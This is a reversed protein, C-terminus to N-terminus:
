HEGLTGFRVKTMTGHKDFWFEVQDNFGLGEGHRYKLIKQDKDWGQSDYVFYRNSNNVLTRVDSSSSRFSVGDTTLFDFDGSQAAMTMFFIGRDRHEYKLLNANQYTFLNRAHGGADREDLKKTLKWNQDLVMNNFDYISFRNGKYWIEANIFDLIFVDTKEKAEKALVEAKKSETEKLEELALKEQDGTLKVPQATATPVPSLQAQAQMLKLKLQADELQLKELEIKDKEQQIATTSDTVPTSTQAQLSGQSLALLLFSVMLLYRM